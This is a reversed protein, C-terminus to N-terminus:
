SKDFAHALRHKTDPYGYALGFSDIGCKISQELGANELWKNMLRKQITLTHGPNQAFKKAWIMAEAILYDPSVLRNVLRCDFAEQASFVNGAYLWERTKSLGVLFPIMAAEIVSPIGLAVEQMGFTANDAALLFDCGMALELGGGFCHGNVAAIVLKDLNRITAILAHLKTIFDIAGPVDLFQMTKIDAGAIFSQAGNGTLIIIKVEPDKDLSILVQALEEMFQPTLINTKKQMAIIAINNHTELSLYNPLNM